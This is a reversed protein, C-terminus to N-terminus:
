RCDGSRRLIVRANDSIIEAYGMNVALSVCVNVCVSTLLLLVPRYFGFPFSYIYLHYCLLSLMLMRPAFGIAAKAQAMKRGGGKGVQETQAMKPSRPAM